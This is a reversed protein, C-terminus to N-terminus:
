SLLEPQNTKIWAILDLLDVCTANWGGETIAVVCLRMEPDDTGTDCEMLKVDSGENYERVGTMVKINKVM